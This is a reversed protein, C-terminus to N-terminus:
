KPSKDFPVNFLCRAIFKYAGFNTPRFKRAKLFAKLSLRYWKSTYLEYGYEFWVKYFVKSLEDDTVKEGSQSTTGMTTIANEIIEARYNRLHPKHSISALNKRYYAYITDLQAIQTNHALQLWFDYDQGRRYSPTFSAKELIDRRVMAAIIHYWSTEFLTHYVWGSRNSVLQAPKDNDVPTADSSSFTDDVHVFKGTAVGFQPHNELFEVQQHLRNPAWIDDGDNFAVYSGKSHSIGTNRAVASGANEQFVYKVCSGLDKIIKATDDNSGDDVVIIEKNPYNQALLSVLCDKIYKEGNFVPVVISVLPLNKSMLVDM